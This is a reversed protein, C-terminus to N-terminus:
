KPLKILGTIDKYYGRLRIGNNLANINYYPNERCWNSLNTVLLEKKDKFLIKYTESNAESTNKRQLKSPIAGNMPHIVSGDAYQKKKTESIQRKVEDSHHKGLFNPKIKSPNLDGTAFGVSKNNWNMCLTDNIHHDITTEEAICLEEFSSCEILIERTLQSKDKISRVWRGSGLYNKSYKRSCRGIYYKGNTHTTKYIFM